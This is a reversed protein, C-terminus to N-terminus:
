SPPVSSTRSWAAMDLEKNKPAPPLIISESLDIPRRLSRNTGYLQEVLDIEEEEGPVDVGIPPVPPLVNAISITDESLVTESDVVLDPMSKPRRSGPSLNFSILDRSAGKAENEKAVIRKLIEKNTRRAPDFDLDNNLIEVLLLYPAHEASNLVVSEGPPIRVIRHHAQSIGDNPHPSDSTSCWMPM